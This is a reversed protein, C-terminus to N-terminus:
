LLYIVIDIEGELGHIELLPRVLLPRRMGISSFLDIIEVRNGIM